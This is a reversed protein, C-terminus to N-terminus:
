KTNWIIRLLASLFGAGILAACGFVIHSLMSVSNTLNSVNITLKSIDAMNRQEIMQIDGIRRTHEDHREQLLAVETELHIPCESM